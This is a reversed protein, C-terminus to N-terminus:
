MYDVGLTQTDWMRLQWDGGDLYSVVPAKYITEQATTM